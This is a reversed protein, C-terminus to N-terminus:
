AYFGRKLQKLVYSRGSKGYPIHTHVGVGGSYVVFSLLKM